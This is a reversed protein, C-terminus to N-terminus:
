ITLWCPESRPPVVQARIRRQALRLLIRPHPGDHQVRDIVIRRLQHHDFHLFRSEPTELKQDMPRLVTEAPDIVLVAVNRWQRFRQSLKGSNGLQENLGNVLRVQCLRRPLNEELRRSRTFLRNESAPIEDAHIVIILPEVLVADYAKEKKMQGGRACWR